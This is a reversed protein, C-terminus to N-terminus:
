EDINHVNVRKDMSIMKDTVEKQLTVTHIKSQSAVRCYHNWETQRQEMTEWKQCLEM